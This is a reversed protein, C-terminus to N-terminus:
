NPFLRIMVVGHHRIKTNFSGTFVGLNKQKWVDRITWKGKLGLKNLDLEYSRPEEDGWRFYSQPTKQYGDINFM